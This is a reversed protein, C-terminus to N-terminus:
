GSNGTAIAVICGINLLAVIGGFFLRQQILEKRTLSRAPNVPPPEEDEADGPNEEPEAKEDDYEIATASSTALNKEPHGRPRFPPISPAFDIEDVSSNASKEGESDNRPRHWPRCDLSHRGQDRFPNEPALDPNM